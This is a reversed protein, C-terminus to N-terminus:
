KKYNHDHTVRHVNITIERGNVKYIIRGSFSFSSSRYGEWESHLQHDNWRKSNEIFEPGEEEMESVWAKIIILDESSILKSKILKKFETEAPKTM